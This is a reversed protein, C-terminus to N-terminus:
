ECRGLRFRNVGLEEIVGNPGQVRGKLYIMSQTVALSHDVRGGLGRTQREACEM